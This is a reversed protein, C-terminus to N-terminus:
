GIGIIPLLLRDVEGGFSVGIENKSRRCVVWVFEYESVVRHM